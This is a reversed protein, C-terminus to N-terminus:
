GGVPPFISVMMRKKCKKHLVKEKSEAERQLFLCFMHCLYGHCCLSVCSYGHCCPSVCTVMVVPLCLLWSLLSVCLLWSLLTVCLFGHCNVHLSVGLRKDSHEPTEWRMMMNLRHTSCPLLPTCSLTTILKWEPSGCARHNAQYKPWRRLVM